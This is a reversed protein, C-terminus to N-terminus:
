VDIGYGYQDRIDTMLPGYRSMDSLKVLAMGMIKEKVVEKIEDDTRIRNNTRDIHKEHEILAAGKYLNGKYHEIVDSNSKFTRLHLENNDEPQQCYSYYTPKAEDISDYISANTTMQCCVGRIKKLLEVVGGNMEIERMDENYKLKTRLRRSCQGWVM